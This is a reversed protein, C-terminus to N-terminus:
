KPCVNRLLTEVLSRPPINMFEQNKPYDLVDLVRGQHDYDIIQIPRVMNNGCHFEELYLSNDLKDYDVIPRNNRKSKEIQMDKGVKSYKLMNWVKIINQSVIIVSNKDYYYEGSVSKEYLVWRDDKEETNGISVFFLSLFIVGVMMLLMKNQKM